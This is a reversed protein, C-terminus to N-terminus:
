HFLINMYYSKFIHFVIGFGATIPTYAGAYENETNKYKRM